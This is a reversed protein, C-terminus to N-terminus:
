TCVGCSCSLTAAATPPEMSTAQQTASWVKPFGGDAGNTFSHLETEQGAWDLKYAVGCGAPVFNCLPGGTGGSWTTGYLSGGAGGATWRGDCRSDLPQCCRACGQIQVAVERTRRYGRQVSRGRQGRGAMKLPGTSTARRTAPLVQGPTRVRPIAQRRLRRHWEWPPWHARSGYCARVYHRLRPPVRANRASTLKVALGSCVTQM